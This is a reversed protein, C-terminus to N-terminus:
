PFLNFNQLNIKIYTLSNCELVSLFNKVWFERQAVVTEGVSFVVEM